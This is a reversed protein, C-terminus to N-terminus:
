DAALLPSPFDTRDGLTYQSAAAARVRYLEAFGTEEGYGPRSQFAAVQAM